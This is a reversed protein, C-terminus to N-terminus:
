QPVYGPGRLFRGPMAGTHEGNRLVQVGNVFVHAVGTAYQHPREYTAHDQITASDFIVLDAFYGPRLLGRKTLKLKQASLHTLKYIAESLSIVQEDRVYKGLLRAFNGYTRPHTSSKLADGEAAPASADSGFSMYPLQIQRKINDESMLFYVVQVRSGDEIVLDIATEEPSQGRQQAVEALTKGTYQERLTENNFGVLLVREAGALAYLNEWDQADTKMAEIVKQRIATNKLRAVWAAYGGEQVWPPMAADLGTSGATYLYMDTTIHLGAERARNITALVQDIKSWNARGAFKLHYIEAPLKAEQAIRIVEEVAEEIRNGESRMHTIYMGGYEGAVKCLAILEETDAYFAPAYILSSGVGLAGEQMAQRVLMTMRDLEEPSPARDAYGLEHVRITTAGVFSAVNPTIGKRELYEFHEAFTRLQTGDETITPERLPGLSSGEGLVELTVGQKIDSMGRGDKALNTAWSLMNIFGPSLALGQADLEQQGIYRKLKGVAVITDSNVALDGLFPPEGSGDYIMANRIILDCVTPESQCAPAMAVITLLWIYVLYTTAKKMLRQNDTRMFQNFASGINM